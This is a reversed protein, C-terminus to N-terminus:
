ADEDVEVIGFGCHLCAALFTVTVYQPKGPSSAVTPIPPRKMRRTSRGNTRKAGSFRDRPAMRSSDAAHLTPGGVRELSGPNQGSDSMCMM